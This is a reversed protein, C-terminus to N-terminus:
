SSNKFSASRLFSILSSSIKISAPLSRVAMCRILNSYKCTVEPTPKCDTAANAQIYSTLPKLGGSRAVTRNISSDLRHFRNDVTRHRNLLKQNLRNIFATVIHPLYMHLNLVFSVTIITKSGIGINYGSRYLM